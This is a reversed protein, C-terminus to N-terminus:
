APQKRIHTNGSLMSLEENFFIHMVTDLLDKRSIQYFDALPFVANIPMTFTGRELDELADPTISPHLVGIKRDKFDFGLHSRRNKFFQAFDAPTTVDSINFTQNSDQRNTPVFGRRGQLWRRASNNEVFICNMVKNSTLEGASIANRVTRIDVNALLAVKYLEVDQGEDLGHRADAQAIIQEWEDSPVSNEATILRIVEAGDLVTETPDGKLVGHVAYDYMYSLVAWAYSNKLRTREEDNNLDSGFVQEIVGTVNFVREFIELTEKSVHFFNEFLEEKRNTKGM